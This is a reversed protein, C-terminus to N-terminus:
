DKEILSLWRIEGYGNHSVSLPAPRTVVVDTEVFEARKGLAM